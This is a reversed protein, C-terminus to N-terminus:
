DLMSKVLDFLIQTNEHYMNQQGLFRVVYRKRASISKTVIVIKGNIYISEVLGHCTVVTGELYTLHESTITHFDDKEKSLLYIFTQLFLYYDYIDGFSLLNLYEQQEFPNPQVVCKMRDYEYHIAQFDKSHMMSKLTLRVLCTKVVQLNLEVRM